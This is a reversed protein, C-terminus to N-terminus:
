GAAQDPHPVVPQGARYVATVLPMGPRYALYDVSPAGLVQLDARMGAAIRGIDTRGLAKAGGVTAARVAEAVTLRCQLVALAIVLPMSSTYGSGPNCNSALAVTVGADVLRRGPAPHQRTCLDTAPLLTAVTGSHALADVDADSLYTCHDVSTAGFEVALQVGPGEGLQNGHVKRALGAQQAARLVRRTQEATFAGRECFVDVFDVQGALAPLMQETVLDVYGDPDDAFEPAIAHAGLFTVADAGAARAARISRHEDALTLGYGSKTEVTTSGQAYMQQLHTRVNHELASDSAARTAATTVAIGGASYPKGAMRAAFEASRDGAFVLHSHSDVWGPLAIAGHLSHVRDAAPAKRSPGVWAIHEGDILVAAKALEGLEGPQGEDLTYLTSIDTLLLSPTM